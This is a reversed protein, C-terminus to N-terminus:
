LVEAHGERELRDVLDKVDEARDKACVLTADRTHIVILGQVGLLALLHGDGLVVNDGADVLCARGHVVNGEADPPGRRALFAWSGADDWGFTAEAMELNESHELLLRDISTRPLRGYAEAIWEPDHASALLRGIAKAQVGAAPRIRELEALLTRPRCVLIGANWFHDGAALLAQARERDPKEVFQAVRWIPRGETTAVRDGRRVWGFGTAPRTPPVGILVLCEAEGARRLAASLCARFEEAPRIVHDAPCVLAVADEDEAEIASLGVAVAAATDRAEPEPLVQRGPLTPLLEQVRARYESPTIVWTREPPALGSLRAVTDELLTRAGLLPLLHKPVARRSRPWFRKGAGGALVLAHLM